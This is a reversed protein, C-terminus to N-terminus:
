LCNTNVAKEGTHPCYKGTEKYTESNKNFVPCKLLIIHCSQFDSRMGDGLNTKRGSQNKAVGLGIRYPSYEKNHTAM